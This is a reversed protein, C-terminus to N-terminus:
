NGETTESESSDSQTENEDSETNTTQEFDEEEDSETVDEMHSRDVVIDINQTYNVISIINSGDVISVEVDVAHTGHELEDSNVTATVKLESSLISSILSEQASFAVSITEDDAISLTPKVSETNTDIIEIDSVELSKTIINDIEIKMTVYHNASDQFYVGDPLKIEIRKETDGIEKSLDLSYIIISSLEDIVSSAGYVDINNESLTVTVMDITLDGSPIVNVKMPISAEKNVDIFVSVENFDTSIYQNSVENGEEDLLLLPATVKVSQTLNESPIDAYAKTINEIVTSPGSVIIEEVSLVPDEYMYGSPEGSSMLIEVPVIKEVIDDVVIYSRTPNESEVVLSTLNQPLTVDYKLNYEGSEDIQSVDVEVTIDNKDLSAIDSSLGKLHLSVTQPDGEIIALDYENLITSTGVFKVPIDNFTWYKTPNQDKMVIIWMCVALFLALIKTSIDKIDFFKKM